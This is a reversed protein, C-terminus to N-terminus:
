APWWRPVLLLRFRGSRIMDLAAEATVHCERSHGCHLLEATDRSHGCRPLEAIDRRQQLAMITALRIAVHTRRLALHEALNVVSCAARKRAVAQQAWRTLSVPLEPPWM